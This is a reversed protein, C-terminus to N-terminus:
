RSTKKLEVIYHDISAQLDKLAAKGEDTVAKSTQDNVANELVKAISDSQTEVLEFEDPTRSIIAMIGYRRMKQIDASISVMDALPVAGKKYLVSDQENIDNMSGILYAGLSITLLVTALFSSILKPGIKINKM